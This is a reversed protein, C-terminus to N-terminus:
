EELGAAELAEARSLYTGWRIARNDRWDVVQWTTQEMPASSEAGHGRNHLRAVTMDGAPRIEEIEVTFDSYVSFLDEWWRRVGDHGSYVTGGELRVVAPTLEVDPDNLGLFADFDRRNFDEVARYHLEVNGESM